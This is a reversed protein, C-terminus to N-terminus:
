RNPATPRALERRLVKGVPTRPLAEVFEVALPTKYNALSQQCWAQIEELTVPDGPRLVIWAKPAEGRVPDPVGAVAAEVVRPHAALVEEIERPWVQLGGVKILDKIRDVIYFYGSADMRALDGTHLWGDRLARATEEPQNHYGQMIQPGRILLEGAEGPPLVSQGDWPDVIRCDVDPLPLGISGARKEGFMPNCHTATPAESLGYGEMLSAGTLAEFQERVEKLLPASGSICAKISGLRYKGAQVDPNRNILAYLTPAGPYFSVQYKEINYLLDPLNRPDSVLVMKAGLLMSLSMGLVMGYVHYLPIAVLSTEQGDRLGILWRRFMLSNAVLNRHLGVAGKPVGTTGGSYQFVAIDDPSVQISPLVGPEALVESLRYDEGLRCGGSRGQWGVMEGAEDPGTLLLSQFGASPRISQLMDELGTLAVMLTVGADRAQFIVEPPKYHPNIAVVVGGAKLIAYYVLVFQPMNPLMMGVRQGKKLGMRVLGVALRNVLDKMQAYTIVQDRFVTCANEPIARATEDFLHFLPVAPYDMQQPVGPDYQKLWPRVDQSHGAGPHEAM